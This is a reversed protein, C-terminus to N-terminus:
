LGGRGHPECKAAQWLAALSLQLAGDVLGPHVDFEDWRGSPDVLEAVAEGAGVHIDHLVSFCPGYELGHAAPVGDVGAGRAAMSTVIRVRKGFHGFASKGSPTPQLPTPQLAAYFRDSPIYESCAAQAESVVWSVAGAKGLPQLWARALRWKIRLPQFFQCLM